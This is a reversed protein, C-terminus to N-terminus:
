VTDYAAGSMAENQKTTILCRICMYNIHFFLSIYFCFTYKLNVLFFDRRPYSFPKYLVGIGIM